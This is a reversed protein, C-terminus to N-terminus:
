VSILSSSNSFSFCGPSIGVASGADCCPNAQSDVPGLLLEGLLGIIRDNFGLQKLQCGHTFLDGTVDFIM